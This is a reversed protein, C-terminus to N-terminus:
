NAATRPEAATTTALADALWTIGRATAVTSGEADIRPGNLELDFPGTYGAAVVQAILRRLPVVGDGPVARSPLARDGSAYDGLQVHAVHPAARRISDSFHLDTWLHFLDVCITTGVAEAIEVADTLTHAFTMDAYLWTAPEVAIGVAMSRARQLSPGVADGFVPVPDDWQSQPRAGTLIYVTAAGVEAAADVIADLRRRTAPWSSRDDLDFVTGGTVAVASLGRHDLVRRTRSAPQELLRSATVSVTAVGHAAVEDCFQLVSLQPHCLM